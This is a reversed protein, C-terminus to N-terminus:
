LAHEHSRHRMGISIPQLSHQCPPHMGQVGLPHLLPHLNRTEHPSGAPCAVRRDRGALKEGSGIFRASACTVCPGRSRKPPSQANEPGTQAEDRRHVLESPCGESFGGRRTMRGHVPPRAGARRRLLAAHERISAPDGAADERETRERRAPEARHAYRTWM